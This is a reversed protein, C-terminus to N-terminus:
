LSCIVAHNRGNGIGEGVIVVAAVAKEGGGFGAGAARIPRGDTSGGGCKGGRHLTMERGLFVDDERRECLDEEDGLIRDLDHAALMRM